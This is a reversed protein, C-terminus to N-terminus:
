FEVNIILEDLGRAIEKHIWPALFGRKISEPLDFHRRDTRIFNRRTQEHTYVRNGGRQSNYAAAPMEVEVIPGRLQPWNAIRAEFNQPVASIEEVKKFRFEKLPPAELSHPANHVAIIKAGPNFDQLRRLKLLVKKEVELAHDAPLTGEAIARRLEAGGHEAVDVPEVVLAPLPDDLM